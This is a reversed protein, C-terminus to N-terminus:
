STVETVDQTNARGQPVLTDVFETLIGAGGRTRRGIGAYAPVHEAIASVSPSHRTNTGRGLQKPANDIHPTAQM